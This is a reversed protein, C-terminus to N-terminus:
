YDIPEIQKILMPQGDFMLSLKSSTTFAIALSDLINLQSLYKAPTTLDVQSFKWSIPDVMRYGEKSM